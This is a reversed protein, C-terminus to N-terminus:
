AAAEQLHVATSVFRALLARAPAPLRHYVLILTALDADTEALHFTPDLLQLFALLHRTAPTVPIDSHEAGLALARFVVFVSHLPLETSHGSEMRSVSGQSIVARDALGQQSWGLLTRLDRCAHGIAMCIKEWDAALM